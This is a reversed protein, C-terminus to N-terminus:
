IIFQTRITPRLVQGGPEIIIRRPLAEIGFCDGAGTMASLISMMASVLDRQLLIRVLTLRGDSRFYKFFFNLMYEVQAVRATFVTVECYWLGAGSAFCTCKVSEFDASDNRAELGDPALKM